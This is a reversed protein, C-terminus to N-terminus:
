KRNNFTKNSGMANDGVEVQTFQERIKQAGSKKRNADAQRRAAELDTNEDQLSLIVDRQYEADTGKLLKELQKRMARRQERNPLEALWAEVEPVFTTKDSM